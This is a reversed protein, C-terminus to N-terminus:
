PRKEHHVTYIALFNGDALQVVGPDNGLSINQEEIEWTYGDASFAVANDGYFRLGGDVPIVDGLFSIALPIDDVQEFRLGDKSISHVNNNIGGAEEDHSTTYHHWIDDFYVVAPDLVVQETELAKGDWNFVGDIEDATATHLQPFAEGHAHYTFFLRLSGDALQMLTPDVATPGPMPLDIKVLRVSSWSQGQDDSTVYAIRDFLAKHQYSFYQFTAILTGGNTVMLHGVGAHPIFLQGGSFQIGDDSRTIYLDQFWPTGGSEVTPIWAPLASSEEMFVIDEKNNPVLALKDGPQGEGDPVQENVPADVQAPKLPQCASVAIFGIVFLLITYKM